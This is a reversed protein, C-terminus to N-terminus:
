PDSGDLRQTTSIRPPTIVRDPHAPPPTSDGTRSGLVVSNAVFERVSSVRLAVERGTLRRNRVDGFSSGVRRNLATRFLTQNLTRRDVELFDLLGQPIHREEVLTEYSIFALNRSTQQMERAAALAAQWEAEFERCYDQIEAPDKFRYEWRVLMRSVLIDAPNRTLFLIRCDPYLDTLYRMMESDNYRIEKFGWRLGPPCDFLRAISSRQWALFGDADFGNAWNVFRGVYTSFSAYDAVNVKRVESSRISGYARAFDRLFGSHEGWIALDEFCNLMRQLLTTGGRYFGLIFLPATDAVPM